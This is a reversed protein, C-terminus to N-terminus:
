MLYCKEKTTSLRRKINKYSSSSRHTKDTSKRTRSSGAEQHSSRRSDTKKPCCTEKDTDVTSLDWTSASELSDYYSQLSDLRGIENAIAMDTEMLTLHHGRYPSPILYLKKLLTSILIPRSKINKEGSVEVATVISSFDERRGFEEINKEIEEFFSRSEQIDVNKKLIVMVDGENPTDFERPQYLCTDRRVTNNTKIVNFLFVKPINRWDENCFKSWVEYFLIQKGDDLILQGHTSPEFYGWFILFLISKKKPNKAVSDLTSKVNDYSDLEHIYEPSVEINFSKLFHECNKICSTDAFIHVSAEEDSVVHDYEDAILETSPSDEMLSTKSTPLLCRELNM